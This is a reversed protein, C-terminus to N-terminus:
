KTDKVATEPRDRGPAVEVHWHGEGDEYEIVETNGPEMQEAAAARAARLAEGHTPFTESYADSAKYAWGDDHQVIQYTVKTM